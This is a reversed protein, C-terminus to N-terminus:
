VRISDDKIIKHYDYYQLKKVENTFLANVINVEGKNSFM